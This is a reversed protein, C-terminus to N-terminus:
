ACSRRQPDVKCASPRIHRRKGVGFTSRDDINRDVAVHARMEGAVCHQELAVHLGSTEARRRRLVHEGLRQSSRIRIEIVDRFRCERGLRGIADLAAPLILVGRTVAAETVHREAPRRWLNARDLDLTELHGLRMEHRQLLAEYEDIAADSPERSLNMSIDPAREGAVVVHHRARQERELLVRLRHAVRDGAAVEAAYPLHQVFVPALLLAQM